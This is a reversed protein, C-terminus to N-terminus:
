KLRGVMQTTQEFMGYYIKYGNYYYGMGFGLTLAVALFLTNYIRTTM